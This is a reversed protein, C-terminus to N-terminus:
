SSYTKFLQAVEKALPSIPGVSSIYLGKKARSAAMYFLRREHSMDIGMLKYGAYPFIQDTMVPMIVHDFELNRVERAPAVVITADIEFARRDNIKPLIQSLDGELSLLEELALLASRRDEASMGSLLDYSAGKFVEQPPVAGTTMLKYYGVLTRQLAGYEKLTVNPLDVGEPLPAGNKLWDRASLGSAFLAEVLSPSLGYGLLVNRLHRNEGQNLLIHLLDLLMIAGPITWVTHAFCNHPIKHKALILHWKSALFDNRLVICARERKAVKQLHKIVAAVEEENTKFTDVQLVGAEKKDFSVTKRHKDPLTQTIAQVAGGLRKPMRFNCELTFFKLGALEKFEEFVASGIAGDRVFAGQEDDGFANLIAGAKIHDMFWLYQIRTADQINDVFFYKMPCLQYQGQRVGVLHQRVIDYYDVCDSRDIQTKYSAFLDYYRENEQPKRARGKFQRIYHEAELATGEFSSDRMAQRLSRRVVSNTAIKLPQGTAMEIQYAALDRLTGTVLGEAAKGLREQLLARMRLLGHYTFSPIYIENAKVAKKELLYAVKEVLATTKGTGAAGLTLCHLEEQIIKDQESTLNVM